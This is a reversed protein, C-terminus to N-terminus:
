FLMNYIRQLLGPKRTGNMAGQGTLAIQANAIKTSEITNNVVDEPRIIGSIKIQHTESNILVSKTGEVGLNGNPLVQKVFVSIATSLSADSSMKGEGKMDSSHSTTQMNNVFRDVLNSAETLHSLRFVQKLKGLVDTEFNHEDKIETKMNNQSQTKEVVTVLIVDGIGIRPRFRMAPNFTDNKDWLSTPNITSILLFLL